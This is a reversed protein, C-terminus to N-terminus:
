KYMEFIRPALSATQIQSKIPWDCDTVTQKHFAFLETLQHHNVPPLICYSVMISENLSQGISHAEKPQAVSM